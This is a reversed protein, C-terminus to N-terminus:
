FLTFMEHGLFAIKFFAYKELEFLIAIFNWIFYKNLKLIKGGNNGESKPSTM